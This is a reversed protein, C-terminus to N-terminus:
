YWMGKRRQLANARAEALAIFFGDIKCLFSKVYAM